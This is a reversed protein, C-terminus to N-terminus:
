QLGFVFTIKEEKLSVDLLYNNVTAIKKVISLGLGYGNQGRSKEMRYFPDFIKELDSEIMSVTFNEIQILILDTSSLKVIVTQNPSYKIGNEILNYLASSIIEYNGVVCLKSHDEPLDFDVHVSCQLYKNKIQKKLNLILEDIRFTQQNGNKSESTVKSLFLLQATLDQLRIVDQKLQKLLLEYEDASRTKILSVDIQAHISTLPNNLEHSAYSIFSKQDEFALQLRALLKNYTNILRSIEDGNEISNLRTHLNSISIEDMEDMLEKIPRLTHGAYIWGAFGTICLISFYVYTLTKLLRDLFLLGDKNKAGAVFAFRKGHFFHIGGVYEVDNKSFSLNGESFLRKLKKNFNPSVESFHITDNNTYLEVGNEAYISINELSYIDRKNQDIIKLLTSDVEDVSILLNATTSAKKYLQERFDNRQMKSCLFYISVFALFLLFGSTFIFTLTIKTRIQM